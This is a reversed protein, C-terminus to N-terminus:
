NADDVPRCLRKTDADFQALAEDREKRITQASENSAFALGGNYQDVIAQREDGNNRLECVTARLRAIETFQWQRDQTLVAIMQDYLNPKPTTVLQGSLSELQNIVERYTHM